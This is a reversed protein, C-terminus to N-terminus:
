RRVGTLDVTRVAERRRRRAREELRWAVHLFGGAAAFGVAIAAVSAGFWVWPHTM